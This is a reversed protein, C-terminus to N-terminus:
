IRQAAGGGADGGEEHLLAHVRSHLWGRLPHAHRVPGSGGGPVSGCGSPFHLLCPLPNPPCTKHIQTYMYMCEHHVHIARSIVVCTCVNMTYM